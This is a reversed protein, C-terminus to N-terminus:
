SLLFVHDEDDDKGEKRKAFHILYKLIYLPRILLQGHEIIANKEINIPEFGASNAVYQRTDNWIYHVLYLTIVIYLQISFALSVAESIFVIDFM